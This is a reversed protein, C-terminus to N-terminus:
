SQPNEPPATPEQPVTPVPPVSPAPSAPPIVDIRTPSPTGGTPAATRSGFGSLIVGGLGACAALVGILWGICPVYGLIWVASGLVLTGLGASVPDSWSTKFLVEMRRGVQLGLAIWGFIFATALALVALIAVPILIITIILILFVFPTALITLVGAGISMWPQHTISDAVRITPHPLILVVIVALVAMAVIQLVKTLISLALGGFTSNPINGTTQPFQFANHDFLLGQPTFTRIGGRITGLESGTVNGGMSVIQGSVLAGKTLTINGGLLAIDGSATGSLQLNGGLLAISGNVTAGSEVTLNGGLAVLDGNLTQGTKLVYNNGLILQDGSITQGGTQEPPQAMVAAPTSLLILVTVIPILYKFLNKM